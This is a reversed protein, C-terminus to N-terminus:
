GSTTTTVGGIDPTFVVSISGGVMTVHLSTALDIDISVTTTMGSAVEFSGHVYAVPIALTANVSTGNTFDVVVHSINLRVMEYHGASLSAIGIVQAFASGNLAELDVTGGTVNLREWGGLSGYASGNSSVNSEHVTVATFTVWVHSCNACPADHVAVAMTGSGAGSNSRTLGPMVLVGTVVLASAVVAGVVWWLKTSM